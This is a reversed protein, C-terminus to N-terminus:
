STPLTAAPRRRLAPSIARGQAAAPGHVDEYHGLLEDCIAPWTRGLVSRRAAVSYRQREAILHDVSEALKAEFEDVELLLGTRYPRSWIARAARTRPSSRCARRWRRRCRRASRRTNAPISSSTWAPTRRRSSRRRVARRHFGSVAPRNRAQGPRRRRRRDGASPRRAAGARALREVHKEPALRGVFGVIPKGDPSWRRRLNEDRASPAFGTIDVGRAWKHVRPIRHAALNEMAATSPALTRDARKHLHRTWAWAARSTVGIGYSEAFGAVDTQFVAVTPIGLYGRPTCGATASCRRRRWICWTLTSDACCASWGRGHCAWRCRRSRRSCGRRCGTCASETTCRKPRRSARAAHGPRHRHSRSRHPPSARDGSAGLQHRRQCEPPLVRRRDCRARWSLGMLPQRSPQLRAYSM